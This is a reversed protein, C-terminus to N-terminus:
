ISLLKIKITDLTGKSFINVENKGTKYFSFNVRLQADAELVAEIEASFVYHKIVGVTSLMEELFNDAFASDKKEYITFPQEIIEIPWGLKELQAICDNYSIKKNIGLANM